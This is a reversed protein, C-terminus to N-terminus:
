HFLVKHLYFIMFKTDTLRSWPLKRSVPLTTYAGMGRFTDALLAVVDDTTWGSINNEM